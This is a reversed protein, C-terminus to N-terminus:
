GEPWHVARAIGAGSFGLVASTGREEYQGDGLGLVRVEHEEPSAGEVLKARVVNKM